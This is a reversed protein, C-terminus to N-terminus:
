APGYAQAGRRLRAGQDSGRAATSGPSGGVGQPRHDRNGSRLVEARCLLDIRAADDLELPLTFFFQRCLFINFAGGGLWSRLILPSFTDIAGVARFILFIPIMTVGSDVSARRLV